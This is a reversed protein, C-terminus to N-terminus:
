SANSPKLLFITRAAGTAFNPFALLFCAALIPWGMSSALCPRSHASKARLPGVGLLRGRGGELVYLKGDILRPSHPM